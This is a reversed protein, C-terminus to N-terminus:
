SLGLKVLFAGVVAAVLMRITETIVTDTRKRSSTRIDDVDRRLSQQEQTMREISLALKHVTEVLSKTETVAQSLTNVQAELGAMKVNIEILEQRLQEDM